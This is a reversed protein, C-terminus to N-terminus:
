NAATDPLRPITVSFVVEERHAHVDVRGQHSHIVQQAIYLGLGLGHQRSGNGGAGRFPDFLHPLLAPDIAGANAVSLTVIDPAQGDIRVRVPETPAGHLLANGILNSAVQALREGDWEGAL